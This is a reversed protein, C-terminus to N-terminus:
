RWGKIKKQIKEWREAEILPVPPPMPSAEVPRTFNFHIFSRVHVETDKYAPYTVPSVDLLRVKKLVRVTGDENWEEGSKDMLMFGFSNQSVDGRRVSEALDRATQTDPLLVEFHLGHSDESLFLTKARTRGLIKDPNHNWLARIDDKEISEKFAGPAIKERFGWMPESLVNFVAAYGYLRREKEGDVRLESPELYRLQYKGFIEKNPENEM